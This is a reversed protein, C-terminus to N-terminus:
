SLTAMGDKNFGTIAVDLTDGRQVTLNGEADLLDARPIMGEAKSGYDILVYDGSIGVVTGRRPGGSKPRRETTEFDKLIDAFSADEPEDDQRRPDNPM